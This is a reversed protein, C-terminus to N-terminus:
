DGGEEEKDGDALVFEVLDTPCVPLGQSAWKQTVRITYGCEPCVAKLLRTAQKKGERSYIRLVPPQEGEPKDAHMQVQQMATDIWEQKSIEM